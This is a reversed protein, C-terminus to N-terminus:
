EVSITMWFLLLCVTKMRSILGLAKETRLVVDNQANEHDELATLVRALLVHLHFKVDVREFYVQESVEFSKKSHFVM